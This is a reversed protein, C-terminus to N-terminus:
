YFVLKFHNITIIKMILINIKPYKELLKNLYKQPTGDDLVIIEFNEYEQRLLSRLSDKLTKAGNYVPLLVSILPKKELYSQDILHSLM